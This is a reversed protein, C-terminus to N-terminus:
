PSFYTAESCIWLALGLVIAGLVIWIVFLNVWNLRDRWNEARGRKRLKNGKRDEYFARLIHSESNYM